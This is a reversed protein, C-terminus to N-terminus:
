LGFIQEVVVSVAAAGIWSLFGIFVYFGLRVLTSFHFVTVKWSALRQEMSVLDGIRGPEYDPDKDLLQQEEVVIENRLIELEVDRKNYYSQVIGAAPLASIAAGVFYLVVLVVITPLDLGPDLFHVSIIGLFMLSILASRSGHRVAAELPATNNLDSIEVTRAIRSIIMANAFVSYILRGAVWGFPVCWVWNHLHPLIWYDRTWEINSEAIDAAAALCLAIGLLGPVFGWWRSSALAEANLVDPRGLHATAEDTWETLKYRATMSYALAIIGVIAIRYDGLIYACGVDLPTEGRLLAQPRGAFFELLVAFALLALGFAVGTLWTPWSSKRALAFSWPSKALIRGGATRDAATM